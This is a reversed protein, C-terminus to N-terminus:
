LLYFMELIRNYFTRKKEKEHKDKLRKIFKKVDNIGTAEKESYFISNDFIYISEKGLSKKAYQIFKKSKNLLEGYLPAKHIAYLLGIEHESMQTYLYNYYKEALKEKENDDKESMDEILEIISNITKVYVILYTRLGWFWKINKCQSKYNQYLVLKSINNTTKLDKANVKQLSSVMNICELIFKEKFKESFEKKIKNNTNNTVGCMIFSITLASIEEIKETYSSNHCSEYKKQILYFLSQYEYFIFHFAQKNKGIPQIDIDNTIQNYIDIYKFFRNEFRELVIDKRQQENAKYQVWFALFTLIAAAIAIFPGMIGGITDGVQGTDRFDFLCYSTQTLLVPFICIFAIIVGFVALHNWFDKTFTESRKKM